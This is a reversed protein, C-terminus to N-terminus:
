HSSRVLDLLSRTLASAPDALDLFVDFHNRGPAVQLASPGGSRWRDHFARAQEHFGPAEREAVAIVIPATGPPALAPSLATARIRDLHLWENAFSDVLPRLDYLGSIALAGKVADAPLDYDQQWGRVITMAALHGGASSGLVHIRDPDLGHARGYRHIWAVGARVQRVIEELSAEPALSYDLTVTAVGQEALVDAMFATDHRSLMRWYGGHIAIVVPRPASDGIGWVDLREDSHLDFAIDRHGVLTQVARDSAARYRAMVADFEAESVTARASYAADVRPDSM